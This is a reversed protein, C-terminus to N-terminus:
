APPTPIPPAPPRPNAPQPSQLAIRPARIRKRRRRVAPRIKGGGSKHHKKPNAAGEASNAPENQAADKGQAGPEPAAEAAQPQAASSKRRLVLDISDPLTSQQGSASKLESDWAATGIGLQQAEIHYQGQPMEPLSFQGDDDTLTAWGKGSAVHRVKVTAGPVAAGRSTRVTGRLTVNVPVEQSQPSGSESVAPAAEQASTTMTCACCLALAVIMGRLVPAFLKYGNLQKHFM